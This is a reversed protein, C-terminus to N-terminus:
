PLGGQHRTVLDVPYGLVEELFDEVEMFHFLGAPRSFEILLDVNSGPGIDGWAASGIRTDTDLRNDFWGRWGM